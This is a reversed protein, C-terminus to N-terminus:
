LYFTFLVFGNSTDSFPPFLGNLTDLLPPYFGNLITKYILIVTM